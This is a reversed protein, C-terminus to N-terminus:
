HLLKNVVSLNTEGASTAYTNAGLHCKVHVPEIQLDVVFFADLATNAGLCAGNTGQFEHLHAISLESYSTTTM